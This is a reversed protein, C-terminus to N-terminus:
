YGGYEDGEGEDDMFLGGAGGYAGGGGYGAAPPAGFAAMAPCLHFGFETDQTLCSLWYVTLTRIM